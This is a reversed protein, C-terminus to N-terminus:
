KKRLRMGILMGVLAAAVCILIHYWMDEYFYAFIVPAFIVGVVVLLLLSLDKKRGCFFMVVLTAVHCIPLSSEFPLLYMMELRPTIYYVAALILLYPVFGLRNKWKKARAAKVAEVLEKGVGPNLWQIYRAMLMSPYLRFANLSNTYQPTDNRISDLYGGKRLFKKIHSFEMFSSLWQLVLAAPIGLLTIQTLEEELFYGGLLNVVISGIALFGALGCVGCLKDLISIIIGRFMRVEPAETPVTKAPATAVPAPKAPAPKVPETKVPAPKAPAPQQQTQNGFFQGFMEGMDAFNTGNAPAAPSAPKVAEAKMASVPCGCGICASAKDSIEKGCEPCKILAM